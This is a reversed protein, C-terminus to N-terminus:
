SSPAKTSGGSCASTSASSDLGYWISPENWAVFAATDIRSRMASRNM